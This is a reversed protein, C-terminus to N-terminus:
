ALAAREPALGHLQTRCLIQYAECTRLLDGHTGIAGVAGDVMVVIMDAHIVTSLRHAIVFTTRGATFQALAENIQSESDADIQSTAEDLILISPDRLIARAIALRQRQGGSLRQGREGVQSNYGKPLRMIFEHAHARRAADIMQQETVHRAGYLINEAITVDFLVTEQTVMAIQSRLSRLKVTAIDIGDVLVRGAQPDYLRPVLGLLTTKGSGNAGVVACITGHVVTFSVDRLAPAHAGPYTFTVSDFAVSRRHRGLAPLRREEASRPASEVPLNLVEDINHAAAAAEQLNNNLGSLQRFSAAAGVLTVLVAAMTTTDREGGEFVAWAAVLIVVMMGTLSLTEIVPGSISRAVRARLQRELMRRNLANFNRREYGEAHHVKVVRLGQLSETLSGLMFGYQALAKRSAKRIRKGFKRIAVAIVPVVVLFMMTLKWDKYLALLLLGLGGLVGSVTKGTMASFGRALAASDRVVRSVQEATSQRTAVHMPLHVLRTFVARRIRAVTRLSVTFTLYEHSFRAASGILALVFILALITALGEWRGEPVYRVLAGGLETLLNAGHEEVMQDVRTSLMQGLTQGEANTLFHGIVLPLAAFGGVKCAADILAAALALALLRRYHLTMALFQWFKNMGREKPSHSM